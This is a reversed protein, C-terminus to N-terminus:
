YIVILSMLSKKSIISIKKIKKKPPALFLWLPLHPLTSEDDLVPIKRRRAFTDVCVVARAEAAAADQMRMHRLRTAEAEKSSLKKVGGVACLAVAAYASKLRVRCPQCPFHSLAPLIRM